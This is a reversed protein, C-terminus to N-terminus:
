TESRRPRLKKQVKLLSKVVTQANKTKYLYSNVKQYGYDQQMLIIKNPKARKLM